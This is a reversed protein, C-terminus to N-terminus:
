VSPTSPSGACSEAAVGAPAKMIAGLIMKLGEEPPVPVETVTVPDPKEEPDPEQVEKEAVGVPKNAAVGAGTQVM